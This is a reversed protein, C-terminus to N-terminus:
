NILFKEQDVTDYSVHVRWEKPTAVALRGVESHDQHARDEPGGGQHGSDNQGPLHGGRGTHPHQDQM